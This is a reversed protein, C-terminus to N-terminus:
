NEIDKKVAYLNDEREKSRIEVGRVQGNLDVNKTETTEINKKM